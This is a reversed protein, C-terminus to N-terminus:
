LVSAPKWCAKVNEDVRSWSERILGNVDVQGLYEDNLANCTIKAMKGDIMDYVAWVKVRIVDGPKVKHSHVAQDTPRTYLFYAEMSLFIRPGDIMVFMPVVTEQADAHVKAYHNMIGTSGILTGIEPDPITLTVDQHYFSHQLKYDKANFAQIYRLFHKLSM